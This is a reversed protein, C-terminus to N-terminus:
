FLGDDEQPPNPAAKALPKSAPRLGSTGQSLGMTVPAPIEAPKNAAEGRKPFLQTRLQSEIATYIDPNKEVFEKANERGQGIREEKYSYWSGSKQVIGHAVATDVLSGSASLGKGFM